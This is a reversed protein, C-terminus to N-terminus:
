SHALTRSRTVRASARSREPAHSFRCQRGHAHRTAIRENTPEPQRGMQRQNPPRKVTCYRCRLCPTTPNFAIPAFAAAADSPIAAAVGHGRGLAWEGGTEARPRATQTALM